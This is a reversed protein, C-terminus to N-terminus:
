SCAGSREHNSIIDGRSNIMETMHVQDDVKPHLEWWYEFFRILYKLAGIETPWERRLIRLERNKRPGVGIIAKYDRGDKTLIGFMYIRGDNM